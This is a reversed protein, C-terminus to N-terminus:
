RRLGLLILVNDDARGNVTLGYHRQLHAVAARTAEGFRGDLFGPAFGRERLALQLQQVDQGSQGMSQPSTVRTKALPGVIHVRTGVRVLRYIEEIDRNQLRICGASAAAGISSPKNTGHIGYIGWPVNIRLWRTGFGGGWDRDKQIIAWEGVPTPTAAMGVAVPYTRWPQGNNLITLNRKAIDIVLSVEKLPENAKAPARFLAPTFIILLSLCLALYARTHM